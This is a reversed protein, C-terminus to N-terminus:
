VFPPGWYGLNITQRVGGTVPLVEHLMWAPFTVLTGRQKPITEYEPWPIVRLEGGSYDNPDSLLAVTTLKRIQAPMSDAHIQYSDSKTYTQLWAAPEPDLRFGFYQHNTRMTFSVIPNLSHHLPRSCERTEANCGHFSYVEEQMTAEIIRDCEDATLVGVGVVAQPVINNPRMYDPVISKLEELREARPITYIDAM